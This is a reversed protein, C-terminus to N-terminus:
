SPSSVSAGVSLWKWLRWPWSGLTGRGERGKGRRRPFLGPPGQARRGPGLVLVARRELARCQHPGPGEERELARARRRWPCHSQAGGDRRAAGNAEASRSLGPRVAAPGRPLARRAAEGPANKCDEEAPGLARGTPRGARTAPLPCPHTPALPYAKFKTSGPAQEGPPMLM